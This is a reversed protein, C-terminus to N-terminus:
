SSPSSHPSVTPLVLGPLPPATATARASLALRWHLGRTAADRLWGVSPRRVTLDDTAGVVAAYAAACEDELAIALALGAARTTVPHPATYAPQAAVPTAGRNTILQVVTDRRNEHTVYAAQADALENGILRGGVVGYGYVTRHEVALARQLAIVTPTTTM